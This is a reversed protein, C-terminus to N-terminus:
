GMVITVDKRPIELYRRICEVIYYERPWEHPDDPSMTGAIVINNVKGRRLRIVRDSHCHRASERYMKETIHGNTQHPPRAGCLCIATFLILIQALRHEMKILRQCALGVDAIPPFRVNSSRSMMALRIGSAANSGTVWRRFWMTRIWSRLMMCALSM